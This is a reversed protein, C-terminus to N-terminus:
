ACGHRPSLGTVVNSADRVHKGPGFFDHGVVSDRLYLMAYVDGFGEGYGRDQIGGFMDDVGTVTSMSFSTATPPTQALGADPTHAAQYFYLVPVPREASGCEIYYAICKDDDHQSPDPAQPLQRGPDLTDFLSAAHRRRHKGLLIRQSPALELDTKADFHVTVPDNGNSAASVTM